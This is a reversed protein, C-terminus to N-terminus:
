ELYRWKYGYATKKRGQCCSNINARCKNEKGIFRIAEGASNFVNLLRDEELDYMGVKKANPPLKGYMGNREGTLAKSINERRAQEKDPYKHKFEKFFESVRNRNEVTRMSKLHKRSVEVRDMPNDEGGLTSNYGNHYSDYKAIYYKEAKLLEEITKPTEDIVEVRFSDWGYKHWANYLKYKDGRNFRGKHRAMREELTKTTIGIYVKGTVENTLKYVIM